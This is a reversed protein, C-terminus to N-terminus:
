LIYYAILKIIINYYRFVFYVLCALALVNMICVFYLCQLIRYLYGLRDCVL